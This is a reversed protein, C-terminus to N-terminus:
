SKAAKPHPMVANIKRRYVKRTTSIDTHGLLQQAEEDTQTESGAKARMDHFVIEHPRVGARTRATKWIRAFASKGYPNGRRTLFLYATPLEMVPSSGGRVKKRLELARRLAAELDPTMVVPKPKPPKKTRWKNPRLWLIKEDFALDGLRINFIMGKRPGAMQAIDMMVQFTPNGGERIANFQTDDVYVDRPEESHYEAGLAPNYTTLGWRTRAKDFAKKLERIEHNAAVPRHRNAYLRQTIDVASLHNKGPALAESESKAYTRKGFAERLAVVYRAAETQASASRFAPIVESEYKDLIYNVTDPHSTLSGAADLRPLVTKVWWRRAEEKTSGAPTSSKGPALADMVVKAAGSRGRWYWLGRSQFLGPPLDKDKQRPRGMRLMNSVRSWPGAFQPKSPPWSSLADPQSKWPQGGTEAVCASAPAPLAM